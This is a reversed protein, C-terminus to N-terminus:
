DFLKTIENFSAKVAKGVLVNVPNTSLSAQGKPRMTLIPVESLTISAEMVGDEDPEKTIDVNTIAMYDFAWKDWRKVKVITRNRWMKELSYKNYMPINTISSVISSVIGGTTNLAMSLAINVAELSSAVINNISSLTEFGSGGSIFSLINPVNWAYANYMREFLTLSDTPVIVDMKITKPKIVINDSVVNLLSGQVTEKNSTSSSNYFLMKQQSIESDMVEHISKVYYFVIPFDPDKSNSSVWNPDFMFTMNNVMKLMEKSYKLATIFKIAFGEEDSLPTFPLLMNEIAM